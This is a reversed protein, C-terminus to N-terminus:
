DAASISKPNHPDILVPAELMNLKFQGLWKKLESLKKKEGFMEPLHADLGIVVDNGVESAIKWFKETPYNRGQRFGYYNVEIPFGMEKINRCLWSMHRRYTEEDGTFHILDPHALYTFVGTSLGEVVQKAYQELVSEDSTPAGCYHANEDAESSTFHQGLVLYDIPYSNLLALSKEFYKPYYEFEFGCKISVSDKYEERLKMVSSIYDDIQNPFMRFTSYYNGDFLMPAHDSFGIERYGAKIAEEVYQRNEGKAHRCRFTHTHYNTM